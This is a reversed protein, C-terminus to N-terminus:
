SSVYLKPVGGPTTVDPSMATFPTANYSYEKTTPPPSPYASANFVSGYAASPATRARRRKLIFFIALAILAGLVVVGGVVGGAIAGVNTGSSKSEPKSTGTATGRATSTGSGRASSEPADSSRCLMLLLM